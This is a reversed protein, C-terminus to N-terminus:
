AVSVGCRGCYETGSQPTRRSLGPHTCRDVICDSCLREKTHRAQLPTKDIRGGCDECSNRVFVPILDTESM